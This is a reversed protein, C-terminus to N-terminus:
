NEVVSLKGNTKDQHMREAIDRAKEFSIGVETLLEELIPKNRDQASSSLWAVYLGAAYGQVLAQRKHVNVAETVKKNLEDEDVTIKM